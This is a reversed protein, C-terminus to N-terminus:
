YDIVTKSEFLEQHAQKVNDISYGKSEFYKKNIFMHKARDIAPPHWMHVANVDHAVGISYKQNYINLFLDLDEFGWGIYKEDLQGSAKFNEVKCIYSLAGFYKISRDSSMNTRLMNENIRKTTVLQQTQFENLDKCKDFPKFFDYNIYKQNRLVSIFDTCFDSDIFWVYETKIYNISQNVLWSKHIVPLDTTFTKHQYYNSQLKGYSLPQNTEVQEAVLIPVNLESLTKILFSFNRLRYSGLKYIPVVITIGHM